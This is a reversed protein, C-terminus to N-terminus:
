VRGGDPDPGDDEMFGACGGCACLALYEGGEQTEATDHDEDPCGCDACILSTPEPPDYYSAPMHFTV